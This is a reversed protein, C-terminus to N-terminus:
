GPRPWSCRSAGPRSWRWPARETKGGHLADIAILTGVGVVVAMLLSPWRMPGPLVITAGLLAVTVGIGIGALLGMALRGLPWRRLARDDKSIAEVLWAVALACAPISPLYYHVLKTKVCELLILPGVIWGMLFGFAPDTRRRTWAAVMAAPLLASWPYFTLLGTAPYYGPFGGHEEMGTAVRRLIQGGVAVRFFEGRTVVGIAVYWPLAIVCFVALGWRWRLRRYCAGPGGWWWGLAGSLAVLAPGVPGKTLCALGMLAWFAMAVAFSDRRNLEWLAFLASVLFLALTADTTALKSEIFMLPSTALILAALRGGRPGIMRSGFGWVLLCTLTGALASVLRAGFPNDGGLATGGLMLWYILVPKQFRPEGNFTPLVYDGRQRMERTCQAYRPEDRDWLSTRGNGALNLTLALAAIGLAEVIWRGRRPSDPASEPM